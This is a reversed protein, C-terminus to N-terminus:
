KLNDFDKNSITHGDNAKDILSQLSPISINYDKLKDIENCIGQLCTVIHEENENKTFTSCGRMIYYEATDTKTAVDNKITFTHGLESSIFGM